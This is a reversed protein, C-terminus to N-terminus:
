KAVVKYSVSRRMIGTDILPHSSKKAKITSQANPPTTTQNISKVIDGRAIQGVIELSKKIDNKQLLLSKLNSFWKTNNNAIANRFFPRMPIKITGFENYKAVKAVYEGNPYKASDFFGVELSTKSNKLINDIEKLDRLNVKNINSKIKIM